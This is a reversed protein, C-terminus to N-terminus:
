NFLPGENLEARGYFAILAQELLLANTETCLAVIEPEMILGASSRNILMKKLRNNTRAAKRTHSIARSGQGKGVYVPTQDIPDRYIYVYFHESNITENEIM